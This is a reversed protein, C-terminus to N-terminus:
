RAKEKATQNLIEFGKTILIDSNSNQTGNEMKELARLLSGRVGSARHAWYSDPCIRELRALLLLILKEESTPSKM